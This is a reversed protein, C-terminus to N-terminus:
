ISSTATTRSAWSGRCRAAQGCLKDLVAMGAGPARGDTAGRQASVYVALYTHELANMDLHMAYRCGIPRSCAHWRRPTAARSIATSWFAGRARRRCAPEPACHACTARDGLGVLQGRGLPQRASRARQRRHARRVRGTARREAARRPHEGDPWQGSRDLHGDARRGVGDHVLTALGPQLKSFVVGQEVFGYHSGHNQRALAGYRFAGHDRKFGGTFTGRRHADRGGPQVM